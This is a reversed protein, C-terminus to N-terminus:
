TLAWCPWKFITPLQEFVAIIGMTYIRYEYMYETSYWLISLKYRVFCLIRFIIYHLHNYDSENFIPLGAWLCLGSHFLGIPPLLHPYWIRWGHDNKKKKIRRNRGRKCLDILIELSVILKLIIIYFLCKKNPAIFICPSEFGGKWKQWHISVM